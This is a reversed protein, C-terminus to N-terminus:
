KRNRIRTAEGTARLSGEAISRLDPREQDKGGDGSGRAVLNWRISRGAVTSPGCLGKAEESRDADM